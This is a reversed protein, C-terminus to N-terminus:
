TTFYQTFNKTTFYETVNKARMLYMKPRGPADSVSTNGFLTGSGASIEASRLFQKPTFEPVFSKHSPHMRKKGYKSM